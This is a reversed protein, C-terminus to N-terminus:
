YHTHGGQSTLVAQIRYLMSDVITQIESNGLQAWISWIANEIEEKTSPRTPLSSIEEKMRRWIEEFPNLDPSIAPWPFHPLLYTEPVEQMLHDNHVSTSDEM